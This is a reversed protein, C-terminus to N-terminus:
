KRDGLRTIKRVLGWSELERITQNCNGRSIKLADMIEDASMQGRSLLLLAHAHGMTRTVGWSNAMLGWDQIFQEKAEQIKM